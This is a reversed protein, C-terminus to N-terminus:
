VPGKTRGLNGDTGKIRQQPNNARPINFETASLLYSYIVSM